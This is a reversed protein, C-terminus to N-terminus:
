LGPASWDCAAGRRRPGSGETGAWSGPLSGCSLVGSGGAEASSRGAPGVDLRGLSEKATRAFILKTVGGPPVSFDLRATSWVGQSPTGLFTGTVGVYDNDAASVYMVLNSATGLRYRCGFSYRRWPTLTYTRVINWAFASLTMAYGELQFGGVMFGCLEPQQLARFNGLTTLTPELLVERLTALTVDDAGGDLFEHRLLLGGGGHQRDGPDRGPDPPRLRGGNRGDPQAPGAGPLAGWLAAECSRESASHLVDQGHELRGPRGRLQRRLRQRGRVHVGRLQLGHRAPLPLRLSARPGPDLRLHARHEM